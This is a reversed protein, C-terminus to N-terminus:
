RSPRGGLPIRPPSCASHTRLVGRMGESPEIAILRESAMALPLAFRGGGAGIDLWTADKRSISKLHELLPDDTRHPDVAFHHAVPAYYDSEHWERLREVQEYEAEVQERWAVALVDPDPNLPSREPV